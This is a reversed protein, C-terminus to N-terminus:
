EDDVFWTYCTIKETKEDKRVIFSLDSGKHIGFDQKPENLLKAWIRHEDLGIIRTWCGEPELGDKHLYVMVDDIYEPHRSDDLFAFTRSEEVPEEANYAKLMELKKAYKEPLTGEPDQLLFLEEEKVADIRIFSRIEDNGDAFRWGHESRQAAALVELTIGCERDYYGYTLIGDAIEEGPFGALAGKTAPTVPFVAFNHYVARFGIDAYKM